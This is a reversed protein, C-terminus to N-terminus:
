DRRWHDLEATGAGDIWYIEGRRAKERYARRVRSGVTCYHLVMRLIRSLLGLNARWQAWLTARPGNSADITRM